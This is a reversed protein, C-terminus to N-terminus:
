KKIKLSFGTKRAYITSSQQVPTKGLINSLRCLFLAPNHILIGRPQSCHSYVQVCRSQSLLPDYFHLTYRSGGCYFTETPIPSCSFVLSLFLAYPLYINPSDTHIHTHTHSASCHTLEFSNPRQCAEEKDGAPVSHEARRGVVSM